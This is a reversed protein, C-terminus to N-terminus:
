VIPLGAIYKHLFVAVIAYLVLSIVLTLAERPWSYVRTPKEWIGDRKNIFIISLEAWILLGGFLIVSRAEGNSLLHAFAWIAM